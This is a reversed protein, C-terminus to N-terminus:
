RCDWQEVTEDDVDDCNYYVGDSLRPDSGEPLLAYQIQQQGPSSGAPEEDPGNGNEKCVIKRFRM